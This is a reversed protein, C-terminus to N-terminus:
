GRQAQTNCASTRKGTLSTLLPFPAWSLQAGQSIQGAEMGQDQIQITECQQCTLSQFRMDSPVSRALFGRAELTKIVQQLKKGEHVYLKIVEPKVVSWEQQTHRPARKTM